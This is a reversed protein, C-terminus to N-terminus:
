DNAKNQEILQEIAQLRAKDLAEGLQRGSLGQALYTQVKIHQLSTAVQELFRISLYDGKINFAKKNVVALLKVITLLLAFRQPRRFIDVRRMVNLLQTASCDLSHQCILLYQGLLLALDACDCPVKFRKNINKIATVQNLLALPLLVIAWRVALPQQTKSAEQLLYNVLEINTLEPLLVSLAQCQELIVIFVEPNDEMLARSVEKWIREATLEKLEGSTSLQKMLVLTEPAIQFGLKKYRAAFRAVRLVRLPDEVFAPSIHRLLKNKIDQQGHYPDYINGAEDEAIANITLDRRILDQELTVEPSTYFTFGGYGKGSKRETRALAYEEKSQPHLFVPFDLGVPQYGRALMTAADAGVVVWDTDKIPQKLLKDRVAGGVKFIQMVM